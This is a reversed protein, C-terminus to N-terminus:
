VEFLNLLKEYTVSFGCCLSNALTHLHGVDHLSYCHKHTINLNREFIDVVRRAVFRQIRKKTFVLVFWLIM